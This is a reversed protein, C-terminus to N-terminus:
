CSLKRAICKAAAVISVVVHCTISNLTATIRRIAIKMIMIM